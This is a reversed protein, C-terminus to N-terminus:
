KIKLVPISFKFIQYLYLCGAFIDIPIWINKNILYIPIIPNFVLFTTGFLVMFSKNDAEYHQWFIIGASITVLIRLITYYGIPMALVALFLM